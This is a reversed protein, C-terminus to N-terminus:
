QFGDVTTFTEAQNVDEDYWSDTVMFEQIGEGPYESLDCGCREISLSGYSELDSIDYSLSNEKTAADTSIEVSAFSPVPATM